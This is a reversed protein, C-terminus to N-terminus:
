PRYVVVQRKSNSEAMSGALFGVGAGIPAFM